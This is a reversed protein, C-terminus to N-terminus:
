GSRIQKRYIQSLFELFRLRQSEPLQLVAKWMWRGLLGNWRIFIKSVLQKNDRNSCALFNMLLVYHMAKKTKANRRWKRAYLADSIHQLSIIKQAMLDESTTESLKDKGSIDYYVLKKELGVISNNGIAVDIDFAYDEWTRSAIWRINQIDKKRWLCGGTGWHRNVSLIEPLIADVQKIKNRRVGQIEGNADVEYGNAYAMAAAPNQVLVAVTAELFASDWYDDSDLFAIFEGKAHYLGVNRSPGPGLNKANRIVRVRADKTYELINSSADDIVIVEIHTHTQGLVSQLCRQFKRPRNYTPIIISVLPTKM